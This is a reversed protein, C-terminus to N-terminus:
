LLSFQSIAAMKMTAMEMTVMELQYMVLLYNLGWSTGLSITLEIQLMKEPDLPNSKADVHIPEDLVHVDSSEGHHIWRTYTSCMGNLLIHREVDGKGM